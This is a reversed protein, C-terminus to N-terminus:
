LMLEFRDRYIKHSSDLRRHISDVTVALTRFSIAPSPLQLLGM